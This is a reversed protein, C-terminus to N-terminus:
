QYHQFIGRDSPTWIAAKQGAAKGLQAADPLITIRM